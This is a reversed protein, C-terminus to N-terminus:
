ENDGACACDDFVVGISEATVCPVVLVLTPELELVWPVLLTPVLLRTVLVLVLALGLVLATGFKLM